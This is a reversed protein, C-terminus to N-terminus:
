TQSGGGGATPLLVQFTAGASSSSGLLLKGGFSTVVKNSLYLGLGLGGSTSTVQERLLRGMLDARVGPGNDRVAFSISEASRKILLEILGGRTRLSRGANNILEVIIGAIQDLNGSIAQDKVAEDVSVVFQVNSALRPRAIREVTSVLDLLRVLRTHPRGMDLYDLLRQVLIQSYGLSREMRECERQVDESGGDLERVTQIADGLHLFESKMDHAFAGCIARIEGVQLNVPVRRTLLESDCSREQLQGTGGAGSMAEIEESQSRIQRFRRIAV